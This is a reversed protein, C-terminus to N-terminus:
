EDTQELNEAAGAITAFKFNSYTIQNNNDISQMAEDELLESNSPM